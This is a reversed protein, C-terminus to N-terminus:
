GQPLMEEVVRVDEPNNVEWLGGPPAPVDVLTVPLGAHIFRLQELGEALELECPGLAVYRDLAARRYAYLGVHLRLPMASPAGFPIPRKSFYAATGDGRAVVCTGGVRGAACEDLVLRAQAEDCRICPTAVATAPDDFAALLAHIMEPPVLPSDGQLNVVIEAEGGWGDPGIAALAAACRETGNRCGEPTLAVRAGFGKAVRAIREDDTAFVVNEAGAAAVGARWTWEILPAASGDHRRLPHLPKGPFRHSGYRAPIVVLVKM